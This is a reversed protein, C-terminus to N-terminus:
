SIHLYQSARTCTWGWTCDYVPKALIFSSLAATLVAGLNIIIAAVPGSVFKQGLYLLACHGAILFLGSLFFVVQDDRILPCWQRGHFIAIGFVVAGAIVYRLAVFLIPPFYKLGAEIAIFSTGWFAGLLVFM